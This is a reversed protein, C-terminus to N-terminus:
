FKFVSLISDWDLMNAVVGHTSGEVWTYTSIKLWRGAWNVPITSYALQMEVSLNSM